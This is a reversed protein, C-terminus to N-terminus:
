RVVGLCNGASIRTMAESSLVLTVMAGFPFIALKDAAETTSAAAKIAQSTSQSTGLDAVRQSADLTQTM